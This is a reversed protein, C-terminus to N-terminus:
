VQIIVGDISRSVLQHVAETGVDPDWHANIIVSFYNQVKLHDQMGRIIIPNFPSIINDIIIGAM